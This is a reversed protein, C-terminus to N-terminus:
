TKPAGQQNSPRVSYSSESIKDNARDGNADALRLVVCDM